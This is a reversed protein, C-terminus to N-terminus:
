KLSIPLRVGTIKESAAVMADMAASAKSRAVMLGDHMPLAPIGRDVLRLLAAILIQSETFMLSLGVGTEFVSELAPHAALVAARLHKGSIRPPLEDRLDRPVKLLPSTRFLMASALKKAGDRWGALGPIVAYLDGEPPAIGARLYALRLFMSAFDLDAIPEGKIRIAYRRDRPLDQWWGGFLRGGLDFRPEESGLPLSFYRRLHRRVSTIVVPGGDPEMRLDARALFGNISDTEARYRLTESTDRYDILERDTTGEVYDRETRTLYITERHGEAQAFNQPSFRFRQLTGVLTPNAIIASATGKRDSKRLTFMAGTASLSELIAPLGTFGPRDYRTLKQKAKRLSIGIAPPDLKIAAAYALNALITRVIMALNQRDREKMRRRRPPANHEYWSLVNDSIARVILSNSTLWPDFMLACRVPPRPPEVQADRGGEGLGSM